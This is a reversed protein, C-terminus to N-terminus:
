RDNPNSRRSHNLPKGPTKAQRSSVGAGNEIEEEVKLVEALATRAVRSINIGRRKAEDVLSGPISVSIVNPMIECGKCLANTYKM